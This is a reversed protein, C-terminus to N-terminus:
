AAQRKEQTEGWAAVVAQQLREAGDLKVAPGQRAALERRYQDWLGPLRDNIEGLRERQEFTLAHETAQEYLHLREDSLKQIIPFTLTDM